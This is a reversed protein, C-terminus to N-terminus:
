PNVRTLYSLVAMITKADEIENSEIMNLVEDVGYRRVEIDEDDEPNAKVSTLGEALFFYLIEDSYGPVMYSQFLRSWSSAAYGTEEQLERVACQYPDECPELTGAPIELLYKETAYRYQKILVIEDEHVAIIAVAGPHKVINRETERGNPLVVQDNYFSFHKGKKILTSSITKEM